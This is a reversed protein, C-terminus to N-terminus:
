LFFVTVMKATVLASDSGVICEVFMQMDKLDPDDKMVKKAENMAVIERADKLLSTMLDRKFTNERDSFCGVTREIGCKKTLTALSKCTKDETETKNEPFYAESCTKIYQAELEMKEVTCNNDTKLYELATKPDKMIGALEELSFCGVFNGSCKLASEAATTAIPDGLNLRKEKLLSKIFDVLCTKTDM